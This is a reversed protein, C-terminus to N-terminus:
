NTWPPKSKGDNTLRDLLDRRNQRCPVDTIASDNM